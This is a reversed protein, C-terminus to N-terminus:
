ADRAAASFTDVVARAGELGRFAPPWFLTREYVGDWRQAYRARVEAATGALAITDLMRDSVAAGMAAFDGARWASRIAEVEPQFGHLEHVVEYTKM